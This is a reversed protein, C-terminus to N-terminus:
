PSVGNIRFRVIGKVGNVEVGAGMSLGMVRLEVESWLTEFGCQCDWPSVCGCPTSGSAGLVMMLLHVRLSCSAWFQWLIEAKNVPRFSRSPNKRLKLELQLLQIGMLKAGAGLIEAELEKYFELFDM